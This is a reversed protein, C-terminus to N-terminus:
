MRLQLHNKRRIIRKVSDITPQASITPNSMTEIGSAIISRSNKDRNKM